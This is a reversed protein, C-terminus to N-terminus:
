LIPRNLSRLWEDFAANFEAAAIVNLGFLKSSMPRLAMVLDHTAPNAWLAELFARIILAKKQFLPPEQQLATFFELFLRILMGNPMEVKRFVEVLQRLPFRVAGFDALRCAELMCQPDFFTITFGCGILKAIAKNYDDRSLLGAEVFSLLVMQTWTRRAGFTSAALSGLPFDDTWLIMGSNGSVAMTEAGYTGFCEIMQEREKPPVAALAQAPLINV